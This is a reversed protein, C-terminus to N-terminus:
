SPMSSRRPSPPCAGVLGAHIEIGRDSARVVSLGPDGWVLAVSGLVERIAARLPAITRDAVAEGLVSTVEAPLPQGILDRPAEPLSSPLGSLGGDPDLEAVTVWPRDGVAVVARASGDPETM